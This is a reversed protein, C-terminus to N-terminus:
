NILLLIYKWFSMFGVDDVSMNNDDNIIPKAIWAYNEDILHLCNICALLCNYRSHMADISDCELLYRMSQEYMISSAKRMNGKSIHFSYLFDYYDNDDISMSRARSEIINELEDQLGIYPFHMLLDLRKQQFLCVILQRLCDKRRSLEVNYILSHYAEEYHDLALHNSFVISQFMALQPDNNDLVGIAAEALNIVCDLALHQEFLPIVKLYYQAMAESQTINDFDDVTSLIKETLFSESLIGKAAQMFLDYAKHSEGNDLLSVAM